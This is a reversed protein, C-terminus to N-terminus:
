NKATSLARVIDNFSWLHCKDPVSRHNVRPNLPWYESKLHNRVFKFAKSKPTIGMNPSPVVLVHIRVEFDMGGRAKWALAASIVAISKLSFGFASDKRWQVELFELSCLHSQAGWHKVVLAARPSWCWSLHHCPLQSLEPSLLLMIEAASCLSWLVPCSSVQAAWLVVGPLAECRPSHAAPGWKLEWVNLGM